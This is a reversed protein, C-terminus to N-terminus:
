SKGFASFSAWYFPHAFEPNQRLKRAAQQLAQSVDQGSLLEAYFEHMLVATARSNVMWRSAVVEPIGAGVLLRALSDRDDFIADAGNASNCAALVALKLSSFQSPQIRTANMVVSDGLLLGVGDPSAAAHGSYHFIEMNRVETVIQGYGASGQLLLKSYRFQRAIGEAEEQADSLPKQGSTEPDGAILIYSDERVGRWPPSDALYDLGPSVSIAYRDGLYVGREDMLAEFPILWLAQDPEVILHKYSNLSTELPGLLMGYLARGEAAVIAHNSGPRSCHDAFRRSLLELQQSSTGLHFQRVGERNYTWVFAGEPLVAYSVVVTDPPIAFSLASPSSATPLPPERVSRIGAAPAGRLSAGKFWEWQTLAERPPGTTKLQIMARYVQDAKRCWILREREDRNASLSQEALSLAHGLASDAEVTAGQAFYALGLNRFFDFVLDKDSLLSVQTRLPELRHIAKDPNSRLLDLKALGIQAECELNSKRSGDASRVFLAQADLLNREAAEYDGTMELATVLRHQEMARMELDPDDAIFHSAEGLVEADLYWQQADEAVLDVGNYLSYGRMATYDGEWFRALGDTSYKWASSIDGMYEYLFALFTVARLELAPFRHLRARQGADSALKRAAEDNLNLCIASELSFQTFLWPYRIAVQPANRAAAESQCSSVQHMLQDAYSSEFEALLVGPQNGYKRFALKADIAARLAHDLDSTENTRISDVLAPIGKRSLPHVRIDELFDGLWHDAHKSSLIDALRALVQRPVEADSTPVDPFAEPVWKNLALEFYREIRSDLEQTAAQPNDHLLAALEGLGLLPRNSMKRQLEIKEEVNKLRKRAEDSWSSAPDLALYQLWDEAAQNYLLLRESAIARNFRAVPNRPDKALVQGLLDVARGYDEPRKLEEGRLFYSSALDIAIARNEPAYRHARELSSLASSYDDNMLDARGQADLWFPDDPKSALERAILVEAELLATPRRLGTPTSSRFAEVSAYRSGSMRLDNTRHESYANLLLRDVALTPRLYAFWAVAFVLSAVGVVAAAIAFRPFPIPARGVRGHPLSLVRASATQMRRAMQQQWQPDASALGSLLSREEEDLDDAIQESVEKLRASCSACDIAHEIHKQTELPAHLGAALERWQEESPCGPRGKSTNLKPLRRAMRLLIEEQDFWDHCEKCLLLHDELEKRETASDQLRTGGSLKDSALLTLEYLNLHQDPPRAM